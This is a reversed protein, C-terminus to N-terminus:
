RGGEKRAAYEDGCIRCLGHPDGEQAPNSKCKNCRPAFADQATTLGHIYGCWFSSQEHDDPCKKRQRRAFAVCLDIEANAAKTQEDTMDRGVGRCAETESEDSPEQAPIGAIERLILSIRVIGSQDPGYPGNNCLLDRAEAALARHRDLLKRQGEIACNRDDLRECLEVVNDSFSGYNMETTGIGDRVIKVLEEDNM